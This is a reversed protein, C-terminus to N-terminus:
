PLEAILDTLREYGDIPGDMSARLSVNPMRDALERALDAKYQSTIYAKAGCDNVIYEAEGVTLRSSIATYQLGARQAAWCM